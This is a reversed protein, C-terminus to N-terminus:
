PLVVITSGAERGTAAQWDAAQEVTEGLQYQMKQGARLGITNNRTVLGVPEYTHYSYAGYADDFVNHQVTIDAPTEWYYTLLHVRVNQDPRVGSFVSYGARQCLNGEVLIRQFGGAAGSGTSWFEFSQSCDHIHNNRVTIDEWTGTDAARGQATWAVDYVQAIENDEILWRKANVWNEIGNGYRNGKGDLLMAGGIYDILCDHVHVDSGVGGIGGGGTGTVHVDHIENSGEMCGIIRGSPGYRKGNPAARIDDAMATPNTPANVFLTNNTIDCCFDWLASLDSLQSRLAPKVEGDVLLYGINADPTATYGDHTDPSGLDIQWIGPSQETWGESRNLLKFMTLIPRSGTGYSGVECGFPLALEGYFTDGKRFLVVSGDRPLASNLKQITAWATEPSLGDAADSGSASM